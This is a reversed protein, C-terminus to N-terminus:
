NADVRMANTTQLGTPTIRVAQAQFTVPRLAAPLPLAYSSYGSVVPMLALVDAQPWLVCPTIGNPPLVIPAAQFGLVLVVPDLALPNAFFLVTGDFLSVANLEDQSGDCGVVQPTFATASPTVELQVDLITFGPQSALTFAKFRVPTIGAPVLSQFVQTILGSFEVIGDDGIDVSVVPPQTGVPAAFDAAIEFRAFTDVQATVDLRIDVDCVGLAPTPASAQIGVEHHTACRLLTPASIVSCTLLTTVSGLAATASLADNPVSSVVAQSSTGATATTSHPAILVPQMTVQAHLAACLLLCPPFAFSNKM